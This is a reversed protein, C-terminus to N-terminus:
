PHRNKEPPSAARGGALVRESQGDATFREHGVNRSEADKILTETPATAERCSLQPQLPLNVGDTVLLNVGDTVLELLTVSLRLKQPM